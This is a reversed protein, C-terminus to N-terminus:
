SARAEDLAREYARSTHENFCVLTVRQPLDNEGIDALITRVAVRAAALLPYRYAGTSIAPFAISHCGHARALELSRRYCSALLEAEGQEGGRWVPGVAHAVYRAKLKFGPTVKADGPKCSGLALCTELLEEGAAEHIAGDVGGGGSLAANAANVIMDVDFRTIDGQEVTIRSLASGTM